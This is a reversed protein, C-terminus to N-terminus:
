VKSQIGNISLTDDKPSDEESSHGDGIFTSEQISFNVGSDQEQNIQEGQSNHSVTSTIINNADKIQSLTLSDKVDIYKQKLM